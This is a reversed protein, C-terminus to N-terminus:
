RILSEFIKEQKDKPIGIGNDKVCIEVFDDKLRAGVTIEGGDETFKVANGLLNRMIYVLGNYEAKVPPLGKELDVKIELKNKKTLPEFEGCVLTVISDLDLSELELERKKKMKTAEILDGVIMNQRMLASNAMKLLNKRNEPETEEMAMELAGRIVTIPTRLEHSVNAIIDTKLEDLTKLEEYSKQLDRRARKRDMILQVSTLYAKLQEVDEEHYDTDRNAVAGLAVIRDKSFVPLSILRTIAVHGKPTGKKSPIDKRYDNIVVTKRGRVADGWVGANEIPYEIPKERVKCDKLVGKSWAHLTFVTEDENLFGYFGYKSGTKEVMEDLVHDTLVKLDADAMKALDWLSELNKQLRIQEEEAKKRETIDTVIGLLARKGEFEIAKSSVLADVIEGKKTIFTLEHPPFEEGKLARKFYKEAKKRTKPSIMGFFNFDPSYIENQTYGLIEEAKKNAYMVGGKRASVIGIM